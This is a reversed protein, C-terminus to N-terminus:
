KKEEVKNEEVMKEEAKKEEAMEQEEEKLEAEPSVAEAEPLTKAGGQSRGNDVGAISTHVPATHAHAHATAKEAKEAARKAKAAEREARRADAKAKREEARAKREEAKAKANAQREEVKKAHAAQNEHKKVIQEAAKLHNHCAAHHKTHHKNSVDRLAKIEAAVVDLHYDFDSKLEAPLSNGADKIKALRDESEKIMDESSMVAKHMKKHQQPAAPHPVEHSSPSAAPSCIGPASTFCLAASALTTLLIRNM